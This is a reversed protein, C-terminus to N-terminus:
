HRIQRNAMDATATELLPKMQQMVALAQRFQEHAALLAVVESDTIALPERGKLGSLVVELVAVGRLFTTELDTSASGSRKM